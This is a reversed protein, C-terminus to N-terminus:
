LLHDFEAPAGDQARFVRFDRTPLSLIAYTASGAALAGCVSGPNLIMGNQEVVQMPVHTHGLMLIDAAAAELLKMYFFRDAMERRPYVYETNSHPTGHALMVRVGALELRLTPPLRRLYSLSELSLLRPDSAKVLHSELLWAQDSAASQDHNGQICTIENAQVLKVTAENETGKGVLDGACLIRDVGAANLLDLVRRLATVDAHVDAILGLKM